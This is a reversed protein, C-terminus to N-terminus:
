RWLMEAAIIGALGLYVAGAIYHLAATGTRARTFRLHLGGALVGIAGYLVMESSVNVAALMAFQAVTNQAGGLFGPLVALFFLMIKPNSVAVMVGRRYWRGLTIETSDASAWAHRVAVVALLLLYTAGFLKVADLWHPHMRALTGVGLVVASAYISMGTGIGLIARVAARRGGELGVAAMYTMDPGPPVLFLAIVAFYSPLVGVDISGM